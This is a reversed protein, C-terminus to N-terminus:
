PPVPPNAQALLESLRQRLTAFSNAKLLLESGLSRAREADAQVVTSSQLLARPPVDLKALWPLLNFGNEDGDLNVDMLVLGVGDTITVIDRFEQATRTVLIEAELKELKVARRLLSLYTHDDDVIVVKKM